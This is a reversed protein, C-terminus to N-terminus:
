EFYRHFTGPLRHYDVAQSGAPMPSSNKTVWFLLNKGRPGQRAADLFAAAAKGTYTRDLTIGQLREFMDIAESAEPTVQGYGPGLFGHEVVFAGPDSAREFLLSDVSFLARSSEFLERRKEDNAVTEPVVRVARVRSKLGAASIGMALGLATGMTGYAIFIEDPEPIDGREIQEKLEFAANVYGLVGIACTGGPPICYLGENKEASRQLFADMMQVHDAYSDAHHMSAGAHFDALLNARVEDTAPQAFLMLEVRIGLKQGYLVTALAHNSGAAGSTVVRAMGKQRVDAFLFELKRAKNGGYPNGSLDDRKVYLRSRGLQGALGDLKGVPTPFTGLPCHALQKTLKPFASFLPIM